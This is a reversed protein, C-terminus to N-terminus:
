AVYYEQLMTMAKGYIAVATLNKEGMGGKM